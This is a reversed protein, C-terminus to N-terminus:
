GAANESKRKEMKRLETEMWNKYEHEQKEESLIHQEALVTLQQWLDANHVPEQKGNIWGNKKWKELWGNKVPALIGRCETIVRVASTKRLRKLAALMALLELRHRSANEEHGTGSVTCTKGDKTIYEMVYIYNGDRVRPGKISTAVYLNIEYMM